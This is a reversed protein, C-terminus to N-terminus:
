SKILLSPRSPRAVRANQSQSATDHLQRVHTDRHPFFCCRPTEFLLVKVKPQFVGESKKVGFFYTRLHSMGRLV